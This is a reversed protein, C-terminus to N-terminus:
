PPRPVPCLMANWGENGPAELREETASQGWRRAGRRELGRGWWGEVKSRDWVALCLLGTGPAGPDLCGGDQSGAEKPQTEPLILYLLM